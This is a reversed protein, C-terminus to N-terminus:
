IVLLCLCLCLCIILFLFYISICCLNIVLIACLDGPVVVFDVNSLLKRDKDITYSVGTCSLKVQKNAPLTRGTEFVDEIETYTNRIADDSLNTPRAGHYSLLPVKQLGSISQSVFSSLRSGFSMKPENENRASNPLLKEKTELSFSHMYSESDNRDSESTTNKDGSIELYNAEDISISKVKTKYQFLSLFIAVEFCVFWILLWKKSTEMDMFQYDYVKLQLLGQAGLNGYDRIENYMLQGVIWWTFTTYVAWTELYSPFLSKMILYGSFVLQISALVSFLVFANVASTSMNASFQAMCYGLLSAMTVLWSFNHFSEHVNIMEFIIFIYLYTGFILLPLDVLSITIWRAM